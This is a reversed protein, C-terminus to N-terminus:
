RGWPHPAGPLSSQRQRGIKSAALRLFCGSRWDELARIGRRGAVIAGQSVGVFAVDQLRGEFGERAVVDRIKRDFAERAEQIRKPNLQM